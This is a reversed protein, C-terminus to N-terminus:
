RKIWARTEAGRNHTANSYSSDTHTIEGPCFLQRFCSSSLKCRPPLALKPVGYAKETTKQYALTPLKDHSKQHQDGLSPRRRTHREHEAKQDVVQCLANCNNLM